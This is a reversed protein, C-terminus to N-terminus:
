TLVSPPPPDEWFFRVFAFLPLPLTTLDSNDNWRRLIAAVVHYNRMCLVHTLDCDLFNGFFNYKHLKNLKTNAWNYNNQTHHLRPCFFSLFCKQTGRGGINLISSHSFFVFLSRALEEMRMVYIEVNFLPSFLSGFILECGKTWSQLLKLESKDKSMLEKVILRYSTAM